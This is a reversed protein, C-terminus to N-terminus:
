ASMRLTTIRLADCIRLLTVPTIKGDNLARFVAGTSCGALGAIQEYSLGSEHYAARLQQTILTM